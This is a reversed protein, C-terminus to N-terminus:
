AHHIWCKAADQEQLDLDTHILQQWLCTPRLRQSTQSAAGKQTCQSSRNVTRKQGSVALLLRENTTTKTALNSPFLIRSMLWRM